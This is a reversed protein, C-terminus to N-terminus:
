WRAPHLPLRSVVRSLTMHWRHWFEQLSAARYPQDFNQPFWFGLLMAIGIAIDPTGSFDCYISHRTAWDMFGTDVAGFAQPSGFVPDALNVAPLRGARGEQHDGAILFLAPAVLHQPSQAADRTAPHNWLGCSRARSWTHSSPCICRATDIPKPWHRRAGYVDVVYSIAQFTFFSIGIPLALELVQQEGEFGFASM